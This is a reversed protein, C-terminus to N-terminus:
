DRTVQVDIPPPITEGSRQRQLRELQALARYRRKEHAATYRLLVEMKDPSLMLAAGVDEAEKEALDRDLIKKLRILKKKEKRLQSLYLSVKRSSQWDGGCISSLQKALGEPVKSDTVVQKSIQEVVTLAYEVGESNNLLLHGRSDQLCDRIWSDYQKIRRDYGAGQLIHNKSATRRVQTRIESIQYLQARKETWYCVAIEEVLLEEATGVPNFYDRLGSLLQTFEAKNEKAPGQMILASKALLGHKLSNRAARDKGQASKPGTSRLANKRNAESKRESTCPKRLADEPPLQVPPNPSGQASLDESASNNTSSQVVLANPVNESPM